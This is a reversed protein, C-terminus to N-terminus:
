YRPSQMFYSNWQLYEGRGDHWSLLWLSYPFSYAHSHELLVKNVLIPLPGVQGTPQVKDVGSHPCNLVGARTERALYRNMYTFLRADNKMSLLVLHRRLCVNGRKLGQQHCVKRTAPCSDRKKGWNCSAKEWWM